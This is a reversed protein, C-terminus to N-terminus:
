VPRTNHPTSPSLFHCYSTQLLSTVSAFMISDPPSGPYTYKGDPTYFVVNLEVIRNGNIVSYFIWAKSINKTTLMPLSVCKETTQGDGKGKSIYECVACM